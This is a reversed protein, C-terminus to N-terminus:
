PEVDAEHFAGLQAMMGFDDRVAWREAIRGDVFRYMVAFDRTYSGPPVEIGRFGGGPWRGERVGFQVVHDDEAVVTRARWRDAQWLRGPRDPHVGIHGRPSLRM